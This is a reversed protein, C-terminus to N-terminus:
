RNSAGVSRSLREPAIIIAHDFQMGKVLLTSGVLRQSLRRGAHLMKNQIHWAADEVSLSHAM